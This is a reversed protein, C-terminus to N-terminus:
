SQSSTETTPPGLGLFPALFRFSDQLQTYPLQQIVERPLKTVGAVLTIKFRTDAYADQVGRAELLAKEVVGSTPERLTLKSIRQAHYALDVDMEMVRPADDEQLPHFEGNGSMVAGNGNGHGSM